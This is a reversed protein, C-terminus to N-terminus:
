RPYRVLGACRRLWARPRRTTEVAVMAGIMALLVFFMVFDFATLKRPKCGRAWQRIGMTANSTIM